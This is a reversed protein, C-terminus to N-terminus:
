AALATESAEVARGLRDAFPPSQSTGDSYSLVKGILDAFVQLVFVHMLGIM